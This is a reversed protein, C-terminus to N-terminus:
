GEDALEIAPGLTAAFSITGFRELALGMGEVHGPVAFSLPGHVNRDEKVSPWTFLDRTTAGSGVLPYDAAKCGMPSIPGFDVVRVRDERASYFLMFGVGGLGSNWPEVSAPCAATAVAAGGADGGAALVRAGAGGALRNQTAVIGGRGRALPKRVQWNQTKHMAM